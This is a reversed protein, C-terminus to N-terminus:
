STLVYSRRRLGSGLGSIRVPRRSDKRGPHVEDTNTANGTGSNESLIQCVVNGPEDTVGLHLGEHADVVSFPPNDNSGTNEFFYAFGKAKVNNLCFHGSSPDCHYTVFYRHEEESIPIKMAIMTRQLTSAPLSSFDSFDAVQADSGYNDKCITAHDSWSSHVSPIVRFQGTAAVEPLTLVLFSSLVLNRARTPKM